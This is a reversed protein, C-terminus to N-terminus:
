RRRGRFVVMGVGVLMAAGGGAFLGAMEGALRVEAQAQGANVAHSVVLRSTLVGVGVFVAVLVLARWVV